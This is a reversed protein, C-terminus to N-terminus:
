PTRQHPRHRLCKRLCSSLLSNIRLSSHTPNSDRLHVRLCCSHHCYNSVAGTGVVGNIIAADSAPCTDVGVVEVVGTVVIAAIDVAAEADLAASAIDSLNLTTGVAVVIVARRCDLYNFAALSYAYNVVTIDAIVVVAISGALFSAMIIITIAAQNGSLSSCDYLSTPAACPSDPSVACNSAAQKARLGNHAAVMAANPQSDPM